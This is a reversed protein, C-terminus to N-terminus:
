RRLHRENSSRCLHVALADGGGIVEAEGDRAEGLNWFGRTV